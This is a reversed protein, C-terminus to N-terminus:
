VILKERKADLVLTGKRRGLARPEVSSVTGRARYALILRYMTSRSVSLEVAIDEVADITLRKGGHRQLLTRIAEERRCGEERRQDAPSGDPPGEELVDDEDSIAM